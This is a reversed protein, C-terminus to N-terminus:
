IKQLRLISGFIISKRNLFLTWITMFKLSKIWRIEQLGISQSIKVKKIIKGSQFNTTMKKIMKIVKKVPFKIIVNLPTTGGLEEDIKKM